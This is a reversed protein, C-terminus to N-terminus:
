KRRKQTGKKNRRRITRRPKQKRKQTRKQGRRPRGRRITRRPIKSPNRKRTSRGGFLDGIKKRKTPNENVKGYTAGTNNITPTHSITKPPTALGDSQSPTERKKKGTNFGSDYWRGLQNPDEGGASKAHANGNLGDDYGRTYADTQETNMATGALPSVGLISNKFADIIENIKDNINQQIEDNPAYRKLKYLLELTIPGTIVKSKDDDIKILKYANDNQVMKTMLMNSADYTISINGNELFNVNTFLFLKDAPKKTSDETETDSGESSSVLDAKNISYLLSNESNIRKFKTDLKLQSMDILTDENDVYYSPSSMTLLDELDPLEVIAKRIASKNADTLLEMDMIEQLKPIYDKVREIVNNRETNFLEVMTTDYESDQSKSDGNLGLREVFNLLRYSM